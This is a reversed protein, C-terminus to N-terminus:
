DKFTLTHSNFKLGVTDKIIVKMHTPHFDHKDLLEKYQSLDVECSLKDGINIIRPFKCEVKDAKMQFLKSHSAHSFSVYPSVLKVERKGINEVQVTVVSDKKKADDTKFKCDVKLRKPPKYFIAILAVILLVLGVLSLGISIGSLSDM